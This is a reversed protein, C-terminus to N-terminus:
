LLNSSDNDLYLVADAHTTLITSPYAESVPKNLTNYVATSKTSGPVVISLYPAKVLAPITLTLAHTPVENINKFCADNVQQQRCMEELEVEKVMKADKFDAVPPDNFALHGNEGIGMCVIDTHHENLLNEYRECEDDINAANGDLYNISKFRLLGFIRYKLFNGFGQPADKSLGIYEDMHFANVRSWDVQKTTLAALFEDQSPAAAFIINVEPRNELLAAIKEAVVTAAKEGMLKRSNFIKIELKKVKETKFMNNIKNLSTNM